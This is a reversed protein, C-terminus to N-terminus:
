AGPEGDENTRGAEVVPFGPGASTYARLTITYVANIKLGDLVMFNSVAFGDTKNVTQSSGDPGTYLIQFTVIFSLPTHVYTFTHVHTHNKLVHICAAVTIPRICLVCVQVSTFFLFKVYM